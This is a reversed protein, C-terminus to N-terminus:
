RVILNEINISKNDFHLLILFIIIGLTVFVAEKPLKKQKKLSSSFLIYFLSLLSLVSLMYLFHWAGMFNWHWPIPMSFNTLGNLAEVLHFYFTILVGIFFTLFVYVKNIRDKNKLIFFAAITNIVPLVLGDGFIYSIYSLASRSNLILPSKTYLLYLNVLAGILFGCIFTALGVGVAINRTKKEM